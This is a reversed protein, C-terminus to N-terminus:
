TSEGQEITEVYVSDGRRILGGHLLRATIGGHGRIAKYGGAGLAEEMRSCPHCIGTTELLAEGVRFWRDKLALLNIGEVVVNRRVLVPDLETRGLLSAIVPLHEAQILTVQRKSHYRGAFRDETLGQGAAAEVEDVAIVPVRRAPRIGLWTVRGRRPLTDLLLKLTRREVAVIRTGVRPIRVRM